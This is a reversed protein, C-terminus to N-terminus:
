RRADLSRPRRTRRRRRDSGRGPSRTTADATCPGLPSTARGEGARRHEGARERRAPSRACTPGTCETSRRALPDSRGGQRRRRARRRCPTPTAASSPVSPVSLAALATTRATISVGSCSSNEGRVATARRARRGNAAPLWARARGTPRRGHARTPHHEGRRTAEAGADLSRDVDDLPRELPVARRDVHAALDDVVGVDDGVQRRRPATNTSSSSSTGAPCDRRRRRGRRRAPQGRPRPGVTAQLRDVGRAREDGLHVASTRRKAPSPSGPTGSRGGRGRPPRPCWRRPAPTPDDHDLVGRRRRRRRDGVGLADGVDGLGREGDVLHGVDDVAQPGRKGAM